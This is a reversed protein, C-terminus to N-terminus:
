LEDSKRTKKVVRHEHYINEKIEMKDLMECDKPINELEEISIFGDKNLDLVDFSSLLIEKETENRKELEDLQDMKIQMFRDKSCKDSDEAFYGYLHNRLKSIKEIYRRGLPVSSPLDEMNDPCDTTRPREVPGFWIAVAMNRKNGYSKVHHPWGWPVFLCDGPELFAHHWPLEQIIPYKLMDVKRCDMAGYQPYNEMRPIKDRIKRDFLVWEKQGDFLCHMNEIDDMHLASQTSASSYFLMVSDVLEAYGGCAMSKLLSVEDRMPNDKVIDTILYINKEKYYDIFIRFPIEIDNGFVSGEYKGVEVSIFWDGYKERLYTDNKWTKYNEFVKAAEKMVVPKGPKIYKQYFEVPNPVSERVEIEIPPMHSGLPEMHGPPFNDGEPKGCTILFSICLLIYVGQWTCM